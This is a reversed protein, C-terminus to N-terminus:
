LLFPNTSKSFRYNAAFNFTVVLYIQERKGGREGGGRYGEREGM